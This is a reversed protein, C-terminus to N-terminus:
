INFDANYHKINYRHALETVGSFVTDTPERILLKIPTYSILILDIPIPLYM